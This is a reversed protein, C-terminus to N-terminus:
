ERCSHTIIREINIIICIYQQEGEGEEEKEEVVKEEEEKEEEVKEKLAWTQWASLIYTSSDFVDSM